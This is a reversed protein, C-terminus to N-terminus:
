EEGGAEGWLCGRHGHNAQGGGRKMTQPYSLTSRWRQCPRPSGLPLTSCSHASPPVNWEAPKM